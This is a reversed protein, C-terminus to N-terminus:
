CQSLDYTAIELLREATRVVEKMRPGSAGLSLGKNPVPPSKSVDTSVSTVTMETVMPAGDGLLGGEGVMGNAGDAGVVGDAGDAGDAGDVGDAGVGDAGVGDAGCGTWGVM